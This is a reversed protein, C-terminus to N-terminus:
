KEPPPVKTGNNAGFLFDLAARRDTAELPDFQSLCWILLGTRVRM